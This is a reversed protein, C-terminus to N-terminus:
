ESFTVRRPRRGSREAPATEFRRLVAWVVKGGALTPACNWTSALRSVLMLGLRPPASTWPEVRKVATPDDDYVAVTLMNRRLELRLRCESGAHRVANEVLESAIMTADVLLPACDWRTCVAHVFRRAAAASAPDYPLELVARRRPAPQDLAGLAEAVSTHVPIYRTIPSHQIRRRALEQTAVLMIPVEPWDSVQMWVSPFVALTADTPVLLYSVDVIVARPIELACKLLADRLRGYSALDLVGHPTLLAADDRFSRDIELPTPASM